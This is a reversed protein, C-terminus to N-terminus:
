VMHYVELEKIQPHFIAITEGGEMVTGAFRGNRTKVVTYRRINNETFVDKIIKNETRLKQGQENMDM